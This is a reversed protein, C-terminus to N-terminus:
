RTSAPRCISRAPDYTGDTPVEVYGSWRMAFHDTGDRQPTLDIADMVGTEVATLSDFDPLRGWSGDFVEYEIGSVANAPNEPSRAAVVDVTVTATDYLGNGDTITYDFTDTGIFGANPTYTVDSTNNTVSGSAGQTVSDVTLVDGQPDFDNGLVDITVATDELTSASDDRVQTAGGPLRLSSGPIVQQDIGAATCQWQLDVSAMGRNEYYEFQIAHESDATLPIPDSSQERHAQDYWHDIALQGDIWLRVGDDSGVTFTYDGTEPAVVSGTWRASFTDSAISADPSDAGWDFDVVADVRHLVSDTLDRNNFYEGQLGADLMLRPELTELTPAAAQRLMSRSALVGRENFWEHERMRRIVLGYLKCLRNYAHSAKSM